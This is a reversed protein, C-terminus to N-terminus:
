KIIPLRIIKERIVFIIILYYHFLRNMESAKALQDGATIFFVHKGTVLTLILSSSPTHKLNMVFIQVLIYFISAISTTMLCWTFSTESPVLSCYMFSLFVWAPFTVLLCSWLTMKSSVVSCFMHSYLYIWTIQATISGNLLTIEDAVLISDM